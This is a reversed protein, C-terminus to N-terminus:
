IYNSKLISLFEQIISPFRNSKFIGTGIILEDAGKKVILEANEIKIGGDCAILFRYGHRKRMEYLAKVKDLTSAILKQGGYGPEVLMVLVADIHELLPEISCISTSPNIAIGAAVGKDHLATILRYPYRTAEYHFFVRVFLDQPIQAVIKEPDIVMLHAELDLDIVNKLQHALNLGFSIQPVFIGDMIDIHLFKLGYEKALNIKELMEYFPVDLISAAIFRSSM